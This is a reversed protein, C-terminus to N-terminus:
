CCRQTPSDGWRTETQEHTIFAEWELGDPDKTWQKSSRAYCCVQNDETSTTIGTMRSFMANLEAENEVQIGAHTLGTATSTQSVVFNIRPDELMWKAYDGHRITPPEAFLTSYFGISQELNSVDISIHMRKM